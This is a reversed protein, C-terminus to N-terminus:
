LRRSGQVYGGKSAAIFTSSNMDVNNLFLVGASNTVGYDNVIQGNDKQQITKVLVDAVPDGNVDVVEVFASAKFSKGQDPVFTESDKCSYLLTTLSLLLFLIKKM